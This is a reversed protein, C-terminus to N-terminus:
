ADPQTWCWCRRAWSSSSRGGSVRSVRRGGGWTMVWRMECPGELPQRGTSPAGVRDQECPMPATPAYRAARGVPRGPTDPGPATTMGGTQGSAADEPRDTPKDGALREALQALDKEVEAPTHEPRLVWLQGAIIAAHDRYRGQDDAQTLLGFFTREATLTVVALSVSVFAEPKIIRIRAM